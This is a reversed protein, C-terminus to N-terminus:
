EASGEAPDDRKGLVHIGASYRGGIDVSDHPDGHLAALRVLWALDLNVSFCNTDLLNAIDVVASTTLPAAARWGVLPTWAAGTVSITRRGATSKKSSASPSVSCASMGPTELSRSFTWM